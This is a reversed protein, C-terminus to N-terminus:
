NGIISVWAESADDISTYSFSCECVFSTTSKGVHSFYPSGFSLWRTGAGAGGLAGGFTVYYQNTVPSPTSFYVTYKGAGDRIVKSINYSANIVCENQANYENGRWNVWAKPTNSAKVDGAVDLKAQPNSDSGIKVNGNAAVFMRINNNSYLTVTNPYAADQSDAIRLSNNWNNVDTALIAQTGLYNVLAVSAKNHNSNNIIINQNGAISGIASLQGNITLAVNPNILGIGVNSGVSQFLASVPVGLTNSGTSYPLLASGSPTGLPLSSITVDAM